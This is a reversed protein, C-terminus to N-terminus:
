DDKQKDFYEIIYDKLEHKDISNYIQCALDHFIHMRADNYGTDYGENCNDYGLAGPENGEDRYEALENDFKNALNIIIKRYNPVGIDEIEKIAEKMEM